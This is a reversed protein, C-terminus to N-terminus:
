EQYNIRLIVKRKIVLRYDNCINNEQPQKLWWTLIDSEETLSVQQSLDEQKLKEMYVATKFTTPLLCQLPKMMDKQGHLWNIKETLLINCEPCIRQAELISWQLPIGNCHIFEM